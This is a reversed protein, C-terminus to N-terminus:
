FLKLKQKEIRIKKILLTWFMRVRPIGNNSSLTGPKRGVASFIIITPSFICHSNCSHNDWVSFTWQTLGTQM